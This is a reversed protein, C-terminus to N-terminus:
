EAKSQIVFNNSNKFVGVFIVNKKFFTIYLKLVLLVGHLLWKLIRFYLM